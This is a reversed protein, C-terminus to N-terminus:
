RDGIQLEGDFLHEDGAVAHDHAALHRARRGALQEAHRMGALTKPDHRDIDLRDLVALNRFGEVHLVPKARDGLKAGFLTSALISGTFASTRVALTASPIAIMVSPLALRM